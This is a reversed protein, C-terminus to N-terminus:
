LRDLAPPIKILDKVTQNGAMWRSCARRPKMWRPGPVLSVGGLNDPCLQGCFPCTLFSQGEDPHLEGGCQTCFVQSEPIDSEMGFNYCFLSTSLRLFIM